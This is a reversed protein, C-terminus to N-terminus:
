RVFYKWAAAVLFVAIGVAYGIMRARGVQEQEQM